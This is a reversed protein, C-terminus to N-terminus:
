SSESAAGTDGLLVETVAESFRKPQGEILLREPNSPDRAVKPLGHAV